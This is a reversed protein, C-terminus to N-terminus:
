PIDETFLLISALEQSHKSQILPTICEWFAAQDKLIIPWTNLHILQQAMMQFLSWSLNAQSILLPMLQMINILMLTDELLLQSNGVQFSDLFMRASLQSESSPETLFTESQVTPHDGCRRWSSNRLEIKMLLLLPASLVSKTNYLLTLQILLSRITQRIETRLQYITTSLILMLM